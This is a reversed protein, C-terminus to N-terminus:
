FYLAPIIVSALLCIMSVLLCLAVLADNGKFMPAIFMLLLSMIIMNLTFM